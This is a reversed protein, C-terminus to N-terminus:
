EEEMMGEMESDDVEIPEESQRGFKRGIFLHFLTLSGLLLLYLVKDFLTVDQMLYNVNLFVVVM